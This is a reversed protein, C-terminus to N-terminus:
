MNGKKPIDFEIKIEDYDKLNAKEIGNATIGKWSKCTKESLGLLADEIEKIQEKSLTKTNVVLSYGPLLKSKAIIEMGLSEYKKAISESSGAILFDGKVVTSLLM